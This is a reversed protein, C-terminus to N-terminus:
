TEAFLICRSLLTTDGCKRSSEKPKPLYFAAACASACCNRRLQLLLLSTYISHNWPCSGATLNRLIELSLIQSAFVAYCWMFFFLNASINLASAVTNFQECGNSSSVLAVIHSVLHLMINGDCDKQLIGDHLNFSEYDMNTCWHIMLALKAWFSATCWIMVVCM